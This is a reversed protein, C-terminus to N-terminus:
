YKTKGGKVAIVDGIRKTMSDALKLFYDMDMNVWLKSLEAKLRHDCATDRNSLAAKM